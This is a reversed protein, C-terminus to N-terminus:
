GMWRVTVLLAVQLVDRGSVNHEALRLQSFNVFHEGLRRDLTSSVGVRLVGFLEVKPTSRRAAPSTMLDTCYLESWQNLTHTGYM